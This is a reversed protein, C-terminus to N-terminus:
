EFAGLSIINTFFSPLGTRLVAEEDQLMDLARQTEHIRPRMGLREFQDIARTLLVRAADLNGRRVEIRASVQDIEAFRQKFGFREALNHATQLTKEADDLRGTQVEIDALINLSTIPLRHFGALGGHEISNRLLTEAEAYEPQGKLYMRLGVDCEYQHRWRFQHLQATELNKQALKLSGDLDGQILLIRCLTSQQNLIMEIDPPEVEKIIASAQDYLAMASAVDGSHCTLRAMFLLLRVQMYRDQIFKAGELAYNLLRERTQHEGRTGWYRRVTESMTILEAWRRLQHCRDIMKELSAAELEIRAYQEFHWGQTDWKAIQGMFYSIWRDEAKRVFEPDEKLRAGAFWRVLPHLAYRPPHNLDTQQLDLLALDNLREIASRLAYGHVDATAELAENSADSPFLPMALLVRRSTEDLLGWCRNFLDEFLEGRAACLDDVVVQLPDRREKIYGLAMEIAKPNGGTVEILPSVQQPDTVLTGIGLRHLKHVVLEQAESITMGRLDVVFTNSRFARSYERSTVLAKSPEPLRLLWSLLSGDTITEFNDIVILVRQLRLLNEIELRKEEHPYQAFGPYDLVRAIADLTGSLTTTGPRDKDSIWVVADFKPVNSDAKLSRLAIEHALSTKGMGGLSDVLVVPSRQALGDVIQDYAQTRMVFQNYSAAGLNSRVRNPSSLVTNSPCLQSLLADPKPYRAEKLFKVLWERNLYGRRVGAEAFVEITHMEPPINGAKYYQITSPALHIHQALEDEIIPNTKGEYIAISNIAGRLLRGFEMNKKTEIM